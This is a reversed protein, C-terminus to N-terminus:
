LKGQWDGAFANPDKIITMGDRPVMAGPTGDFAGMMGISGHFRFTDASGVKTSVMDKCTLVTINESPSARIDFVHMRKNEPQWHAIPMGSIDAGTLNAAFMGHLAYEGFSGVELINDNIKVVASEIYGSFLFPIRALSSVVFGVLLSYLLQFSVTTM